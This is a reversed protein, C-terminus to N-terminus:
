LRSSLIIKKNVSFVLLGHFPLALVVAKNLKCDGCGQYHLKSIIFSFHLLLQEREYEPYANISPMGEQQQMGYIEVFASFSTIIFTLGFANCCTVVKLPRYYL